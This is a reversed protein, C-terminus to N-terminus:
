RSCWVYNYVYKVTEYNLLADAAIASKVNDAKNMDRHTQTRTHTHTHTHAHTHTCM